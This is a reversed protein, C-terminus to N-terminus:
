FITQWKSHFWGQTCMITILCYLSNINNHTCVLSDCSTKATIRPSRSTSFDKLWRSKDSVIWLVLKKQIKFNRQRSTHIHCGNWTCHKPRLNRQKEKKTVFKRDLQQRKLKITCIAFHINDKLVSKVPLTANYVNQPFIHLKSYSKWSNIGRVVSCKESLLRSIIEVWVVWGSHDM